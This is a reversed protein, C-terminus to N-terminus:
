GAHSSSPPQSFIAYQAVTRFGMARYISFGIETSQLVVTECGWARGAEVAAWTAATGVGRRRADPRTAVGYVGSVNGTRIALSMGVLRGEINAAFLRVDGDGIFSPPFFLRALAESAGGEAWARLFGELTRVDVPQVAVGEAPEPPEPPAQLVMGPMSWPDREFGHMVVVGALRELHEERLWVRYPVKRQRVWVMAAELDAPTASEVGLCGNMLSVPLGTAFATIAGFQRVAGERTHEALKLYSGIFNRDCAAGLEADNSM